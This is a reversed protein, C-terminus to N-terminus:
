GTTGAAASGGGGAAQQSKVWKQFQALPVVHVRSRMLSHGLGCLLNCV